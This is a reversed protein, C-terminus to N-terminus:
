KCMCTGSGVSQIPRSESSTALTALLNKMADTIYYYKGLNTVIRSATNIITNPTTYHHLRAMGYLVSNLYYLRTTVFACVIIETTEQSM